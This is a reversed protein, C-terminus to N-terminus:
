YVGGMAMTLTQMASLIETQDAGSGLLLRLYDAANQVAQYKPSAPDITSLMNDAMALVQQAETNSQPSQPDQYSPQQPQTYGTHM